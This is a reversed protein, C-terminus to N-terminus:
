PMIKRKMVTTIWLGYFIELGLFYFIWLSSFRFVPYIMNFLCFNIIILVFAIVYSVSYIRHSILPMIELMTLIFSIIISIYFISYKQIEVQSLLIGFMLVSLIYLFIFKIFFFKLFNFIRKKKSFRNEIMLSHLLGGLEQIEEENMAETQKLEELLNKLKQEARKRKEQNDKPM